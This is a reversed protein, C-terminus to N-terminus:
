HERLAAFCALDRLSKENEFSMGQIADVARKSYELATKEALEVACTEDILDLALSYDGEQLARMCESRRKLSTSELAKILVYNPKNGRLDAFSSKGIEGREATMDLVDDKIQFAMGVLEGFDTLAKEAEPTAGGIMAGMRAVIKMFSATKNRVIAFYEKENVISIHESPILMDTAEGECMKIGTSAIMTLQEPSAKRGILKVAMAILLDGAVVAMKAGFKTHTSEVGRRQEGEDVLDDHILSATQIFETAVAYPIIEDLKGGVAEHSLILLLSRIRKGGAQLLHAATDYLISPEGRENDFFSQVEHSVRDALGHLKELSELRSYAKGPALMQGKEPAQNGDARNETM